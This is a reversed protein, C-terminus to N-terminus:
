ADDVPEFGSSEDLAPRVFRICAERSDDDGARNAVEDALGHRLETSM